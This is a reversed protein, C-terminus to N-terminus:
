FWRGFLKSLWGGWNPRQAAAQVTLAATIAESTDGEANVAAVSCNLTGAENATITYTFERYTVRKANWGWGTRQTRTRYTNITVGDVTIADVDESTKVTLTAKQGVKVTSRSWSAEFREPVFVVPEPDPEPAPAYMARVMQVANAQETDTLTGLAVKTDGPDSTFTIKLNTLSLIGTGDFNTITVRQGGKAQTTIDYYMETASAINGTENGNKPGVKERNVMMVASKDTGMPAKAGIQVTAIKENVPLKFTIAQGSALYVENNPGYNKYLAVEANEKGDIFLLNQNTEVTADDKALEDRLKIYQPYGENDKKYDAYDEGMPNYVRIADLYFDYSGNSNDKHDFVKNYAATVTATYTGYPVTVKMVPIQYLTDSAEANVEWTKTTEDYKYGYYTDVIFNKKFNDGTVTVVITGSTNSTLSIIDFGTGKFTFTATAYNDGSVTTKMASGMSFTTCNDYASDYGYVNKKKRLEELAQTANKETETVETLTKGADDVRTWGLIKKDADPTSFTVFSDEYYVTSAPIIKVTYSVFGSQEKGDVSINGNYAVTISDEGDLTKNLTYIVNYAEDTTIRAYASDTVSVKTLIANVLEASFDEPTIKLPLGFDVVFTKSTEFTYYLYVDKGDDSRKVDVCNYNIAYRYSAPITPMTSLDASVTLTVNKQNIVTGNVLPGKWSDATSKDLRIDENFTTGDAATIGYNHFEYGTAQNIYHVTLASTKVNRLYYTILAGHKNYVEVGRVYPDGGIACGSYVSNAGSISSYPNLGSDDRAKEDIAWVIQEEGNHEYSGSTATLTLQDAKTTSDSTMTVTVMYVEYDGTALNVGRFNNLQRYRTLDDTGVVAEVGKNCHFMFSKGNQPFTTPDETGEPYVVRFDLMVYSDSSIMEGYKTDGQVNGWDAVDTIVEETVQTRLMYYVVLQETSQTNTGKVETWGTKGDSSVEWKGNLYRIYNFETGANSYDNGYIKQVNGENATHVRGSWVVLTKPKASQDHSNDEWYTGGHEYGYMNNPLLETIAAGTETNVNEATAAVSYYRAYTHDTDNASWWQTGWYSSDNTTASTGNAQVAYNTVWLQIPLDKVNDLNERSVRITYKVNGITVYTTDVKVGKFTVNIGERPTGATKTGPTGLPNSYTYVQTWQGNVRQWEQTRTQYFTGDNDNFYLTTVNNGNTTTTWNSNRYRLYNGNNSLRYGSSASTATWETASDISDVWSISNGSLKLYKGSSNQIYYKGNNSISSAATFTSEGAQSSDSVATVTAIATNEPTVTMGDTYTVDPFFETKEQGEVLEIVRDSIDESYAVVEFTATLVTEGDTAARLAQAAAQATVTATITVTGLVGTFTVAGNEVTAIEPRESTWTLNKETANTVNLQVTPSETAPKVMVTYSHTESDKATLKVGSDAAPTEVTLEPVKPAEAKFYDPNGEKLAAVYSNVNAWNVNKSPIDCWIAAMCGVPTVVRATDGDVVLASGEKEMNTTAWNHYYAYDTWGGNLDGTEKGIVYYWGTNTNIIKFKEALTAATALKEGATWYCIVIDTDFPVTTTLGKHDFGDNFALATMGVNQVMAAMSNVMKAYATYKETSMSSFGCEDAAINFMTCGKGAFYAIYKQMLAQVFNVATADTPDIAYNPSDGSKTPNSCSISYGLTEMANIVAYLHGPADFMPIIGIGKGKAYTILRDMESQTLEETENALSSNGAARDFADNGSRIAANIETMTYGDIEESSDDLLFRLGDNGFALEVHTYHNDAAYNITKKLNDVSFYKRGCDIHVIRYGMDGADALPVSHNKTVYNFTAAQVAIGDEAAYTDALEADGEDGPLTTDEGEDVPAEDENAEDADPEQAQDADDAGTEAAPQTQGEVVPTEETGPEAAFVSMPLLSITMILALLLALLKKSTSKTQNM